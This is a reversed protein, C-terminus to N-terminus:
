YFRNRVKKIIFFVAVGVVVVAVGIIVFTLPNVKDSKKEVEASSELTNGQLAIKLQEKTERVEASKNYGDLNKIYKSDGVTKPLKIAINDLYLADGNIAGTTAIDFVVKTAGAEPAVTVYSTRYQSINDDITTNVTLKIPTDALRMYNDDTPYVWVSKDLLASDDAETLRYAFTLMCGDFCSLGFDAAQLEIGIVSVKDTEEADPADPFMLNGDADRVMGSCNMYGEVGETNATIRLSAGQYYTDRDQSFEIGGKEADRTLHIYDTFSETDFSLAPENEDIVMSGDAEFPIPDKSETEEASVSTVSMVFAAAAAAVASIIRKVTM